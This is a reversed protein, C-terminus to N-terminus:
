SYPDRPWHSVFFLLHDMIADGFMTKLMMLCERQSDDFRLEQGNLLCIFYKVEVFDSRLLNTIGQIRQRWKEASYRDLLGPLDIIRLTEKGTYIKGHHSEWFSQTERYSAQDTCAETGSSTVFSGNVPHEKLLINGLSSKGTGTKGVLM